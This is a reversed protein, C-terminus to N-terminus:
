ARRKLAAELLHILVATRTSLSATKRADIRRVLEPPLKVHVHVRQM